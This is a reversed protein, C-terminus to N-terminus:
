YMYPDGAKTPVMSKPLVVAIEQGQFPAEGMTGTVKVWQNDKLAGQSTDRVVLGVPRADAICCWVQYRLVMIYGPPVSAPNHIVMGTLVVPKGLYDRPNPDASLAGVWDQLTFSSTDVSLSVRRVSSAGHIPSLGAVQLGRQQASFSALSHPPVLAALLLPVCLAFYPWLRPSSEGCGDEECCSDHGCAALQSKRALRTAALGVLVVAALTSPWVYTPNIYWTLVGRALLSLIFIGYGALLLSPLLRAVDGRVAATRTRLLREARITM